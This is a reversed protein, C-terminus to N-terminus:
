ILCMNESVIYMRLGSFCSFRLVVLCTSRCNRFLTILFCTVGAVRHGYLTAALGHVGPDLSNESLQFLSPHGPGGVAVSLPRQSTTRKLFRISPRSSLVISNLV